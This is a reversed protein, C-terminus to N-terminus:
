KCIEGNYRLVVKGKNLDILGASQFGGNYGEFFGSSEKIEYSIELMYLNPNGAVDTLIAKDNTRLLGGKDNFFYHEM